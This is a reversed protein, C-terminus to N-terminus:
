GLVWGCGEGDGKGSAYWSRPGGLSVAARFLQAGPLVQVSIRRTDGEMGGGLNPHHGAIEPVAAATSGDRCWQGRTNTRRAHTM